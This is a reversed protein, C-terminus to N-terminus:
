IFYRFGLVEMTLAGSATVQYDVTTTTSGLGCLLSVQDSTVKGAVAGSIAIPVTGTANVKKLNFVDNAANPTFHTNFIVEVPELPPVANTLDVAAWTAQTGGTLVTIKSDWQYLQMVGTGAVNFKQFHNDGVNTGVFGILCISDYGFPLAPATASLSAITGTVQKGTSDGIVYIYYWVNNALTSADLGNLGVGTALLVTSDKLVIDVTNTSDRFIGGPVTVSAISTWTYPATNIDHYSVRRLSIISTSM